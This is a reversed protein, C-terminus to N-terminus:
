LAELIAPGATVSCVGPSDEVKLATVKGDEVVAAYRLSRINLGNKSGDFTMGMEGSWAANGDSLFRIRDEAGTEEEWAQMVFPDNVAVLIIDDVGKARMADVSGLITPVQDNSELVVADFGALFADSAQGRGSSLVLATRVGKETLMGAADSAGTNDDAVIGFRM